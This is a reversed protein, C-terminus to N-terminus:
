ITTLFYLDPPGPGKSPPFLPLLCGTLFLRPESGFCYLPFVVDSGIKCLTGSASSDFVFHLFPPILRPFLAFRRRGCWPIPLLLFFPSSVHFSYHGDVDPFGLYRPHPSSPLLVLAAKLHRCGHLKSHLFVCSLVVLPSM